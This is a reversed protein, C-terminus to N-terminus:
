RPPLREAIVRRTRSYVPLGHAARVIANRTLGFEACLEVEGRHQLMDALKLRDPEDLPRFRHKNASTAM